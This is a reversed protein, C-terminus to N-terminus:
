SKLLRGIASNILAFSPRSLMVPTKEPVQLALPTWRGSSIHYRSVRQPSRARFLSATSERNELLRRAIHGVEPISGSSTLDFIVHTGLRQLSASARLLALSCCAM